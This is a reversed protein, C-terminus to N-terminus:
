VKDLIFFTAQFKSIPMELPPVCSEQSYLLELNYQVPPVCSLSRCFYPTCCTLISFVTRVNASPNKEKLSHHHLCCVPSHKWWSIATMSFRYWPFHLGDYSSVLWFHREVPFSFSHLQSYSRKQQQMLM